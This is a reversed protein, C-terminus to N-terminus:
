GSVGGVWKYVGSLFVRGLLMGKTILVAHYVGDDDDDDDDDNDDDDDDDDDFGDECVVLM